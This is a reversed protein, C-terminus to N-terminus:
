EEFIKLDEDKDDKADVVFFLIGVKSFILEKKHSIFYKIETEDGSCDIIDLFLNNIFNVHTEEIEKTSALNFTEQPEMNDFIISKISTKGVGRKGLFLIKLIQNKKEEELIIENKMVNKEEM